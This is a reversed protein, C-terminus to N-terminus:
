RGPAAGASGARKALLRTVNECLEQSGFPKSIVVDVGALPTRAAQLAEAYATILAIPQNPDLAKMALAANGGDMLPLEYDMIVVDFKRQRFLILAAEGSGATEVEHGHAVLMRSISECVLPEDDVVLIRHTRKGSAAM